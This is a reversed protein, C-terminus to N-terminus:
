KEGYGIRPYISKSLEKELEDKYVTQVGGNLYLTITERLVPSVANQAFGAMLPTTINPKSNNTLKEYLEEAEKGTIANIFELIQGKCKCVTIVSVDTGDSLDVHILYNKSIKM